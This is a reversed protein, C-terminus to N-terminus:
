NSPPAIVGATNYYVWYGQGPVMYNTGQLANFNGGSYGTIPLSYISSGGSGTANGLYSGVTINTQTSKFGVMNWGVPESYTPPASPPPNGYRGQFTFITPSNANIWYAKGDVMTTLSSPSGPAYSSWSGGTTGGGSCTWVSAISNISSGLVNQINSNTPVLPLSVLNWGTVLSVNDTTVTTTGPSITFQSPSSTTISLCSLPNFVLISIRCQGDTVTGNPLVNPWATSLQYPNPVAWSYTNSSQPMNTLTAINVWTSGGDGSFSINDSLRASSSSTDTQTWTISQTNGVVWNEGGIPASITATPSVGTVISFANSRVTTVNPPSSSDSVNESIVWQTGSLGGQIVWPNISNVGQAASGAGILYQYYNSSTGLYLNYTLNGPVADTMTWTVNDNSCPSGAYHVSGSTPWNITVVPKTVSVISFSYPSFAWNGANGVADKGQIGIYFSTGIQNTEVHWPYSIYCIGSTVTGSQWGGSILDVLGPVSTTQTTATTSTFLGIQYYVSSSCSPIMQGTITSTTGGTFSLGSQNPATVLSTPGSYSICFPQSYIYQSSLGSRDTATLRLVGTGSTTMPILYPSYIASGGPGPNPYVSTTYVSTIWPTTFLTNYSGGGNVSLEVLVTCNESVSFSLPNATSSSVTSWGAAQSPTIVTATPAVTNVYVANTSTASLIGGANVWVSYNGGAAGGLQIQRTYTGPVNNGTVSLAPSSGQQMFITYDYPNADGTFTFRVNVTGAPGVTAPGTNTPDSGGWIANIIPTGTVAAQVPAAPIIFSFSSVLLALILLISLGSFKKPIM